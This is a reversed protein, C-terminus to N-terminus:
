GTWGEVVVLAAVLLPVFAFLFVRLRMGLLDPLVIGGSKSTATSTPM